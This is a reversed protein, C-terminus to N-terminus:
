TATYRISVPVRYYNESPIPSSAWIKTFSVRTSGNTVSSNREFHSKITEIMGQYNIIGVSKPENIMLQMFGTLIDTSGVSVGNSRDEAPNLSQEIFVSGDPTYNVNEWAIPTSGPMAALHINLATRLESESAM